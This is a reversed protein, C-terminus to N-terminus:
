KPLDLTNSVLKKEWCTRPTPLGTIRNAPCTLDDPTEGPRADWEAWMHGARGLAPEVDQEDAQPWPALWESAASELTYDAGQLIPVAVAAVPCALFVLPDLSYVTKGQPAAVFLRVRHYILRGGCVEGQPLLLAKSGANRVTIRIQPDAGELRVVAVSMQLGDVPAGGSFPVSANEGDEGTAKGPTPRGKGDEFGFV